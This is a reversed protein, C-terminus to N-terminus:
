FAEPHAYPFVFQPLQTNFPTAMLDVGLPGSWRIIAQFIESSLTWETAAPADKSLADATANLPGPIHHPIIWM